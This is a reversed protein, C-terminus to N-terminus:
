HSKHTLTLTLTLGRNPLTGVAVNDGGGGRICMRAVPCHYADSLLVM